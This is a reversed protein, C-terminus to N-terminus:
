DINFTIVNHGTEKELSCLKRAAINDKHGHDDIVLRLTKGSM